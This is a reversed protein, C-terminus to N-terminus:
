GISKTRDMARALLREHPALSFESHVADRIVGTGSGAGDVVGAGAQEILYTVRLTGFPLPLGFFGRARYQKAVAGGADALLVHRLGHASRFQAKSATGQASIGVVTIGAAALSAFADRVMCAEKTCVPTGDAPYFMLVVRGRALMDRLSVVEGTDSPLSFDPAREGVSLM